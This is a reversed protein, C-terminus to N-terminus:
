NLWLLCFNFPRRFPRTLTLNVFSLCLFPQFPLPWFFLHIQHFLLFLINLSCFSLPFGLILFWFTVKLISFHHLYSLPDLHAPCRPELQSFFCQYWKKKKGKQAWCRSRLTKNYVTVGVETEHQTWVTVVRKKRSKEPQSNIHSFSYKCRNTNHACLLLIGDTKWVPYKASVTLVANHFPSFWLLSVYSLRNTGPVCHASTLWAHNESNIQLYLASM